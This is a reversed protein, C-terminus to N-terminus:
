RGKPQMSSCRSETVKLSAVVMRGDFYGLILSVNKSVSRFKLGRSVKAVGGVFSAGCWAM